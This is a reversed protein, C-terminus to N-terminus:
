RSPDSRRNRLLPRNRPETRRRYSEYAGVSPPKPRVIGDIDTSSALSTSGGRIAASGSALAFDGGAPDIFKPDAIIGFSSAQGTSAPNSASYWINSTSGTMLTLQQSSTIGGCIFVNQASTYTYAPQYIINNVYERTINTQTGRDFIACAANTNASTLYSGCDYMTNNYVQVTGVAADTSYGKFAICSHPDSGSGGAAVNGGVHHIVNNYAIVYTGHSFGVTSFNIGSGFVDAISNDHISINSLGVLSNDNFQIGNYAHTDYIQNWAVEINSADFYMAHWVKSSATIGTSVNHVNNGYIVSNPGMGILCAAPSSGLPCQVDNNVIRQNSRNASSIGIGSSGTGILYLGSVTLYAHGARIGYAPGSAYGGLSVTAGPRSMVTVPNGATGGVEIMTLSANLGRNDFYPYNAGDLFVLTDGPSLCNYYQTPTRLHTYDSMVKSAHNTLGWPSSYSHPEALLGSCPYSALVSNDIDPGIFYINGSRATFIPGTGTIGGVTVTVAGTSVPGVQVGIRTNSWTIYQAVEAGNIEVKSTGQSAGFNNGGITLYVGNNNEGGSTPGSDLDTWFIAPNAAGLVEGALLFLPLFSLNRVSM